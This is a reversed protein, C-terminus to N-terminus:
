KRELGKMGMEVDVIGNNGLDVRVDVQEEVSGPTTDTARYAV